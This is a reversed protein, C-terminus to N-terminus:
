AAREARFVLLGADDRRELRGLAVLRQLHSLTESVSLHTREVAKPRGRAAVFLDHCSMWRDAVALLREMRDLHSARVAAARERIGVFVPGHSPLVVTEPPLAELRDFMAFQDRLPDSAHEWALSPVVPVIEPLLHDAAMLFGAEANYLALHERAHGGGTMATWDGNDAVLGDGDRIPTFTHPLDVFQRAFWARHVAVHAIVEAPSGLSRHFARQAEIDDISRALHAMLWESAPMVLPAGVTTCLWGAMGIHDVHAHTGVVRRIKPRGLHDLTELMVARAAPTDVGADIIDWGDAGKLLWINIHDPKFPLPMRAWFLGPGVEIPRGPAPPASFPMHM